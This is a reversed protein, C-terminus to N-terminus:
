KISGGDTLKRIPYVQRHFVDPTVAEANMYNEMSDILECLRKNTTQSLEKSWFIAREIGERFSTLRELADRIESIRYENGSKIHNLRAMYAQYESSEQGNKRLEDIRCCINETQISLERQAFEFERLFRTLYNITRDTETRIDEFANEIAGNRVNERIREAGYVSYEIRLGEM